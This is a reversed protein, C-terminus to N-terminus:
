KSNIKVALIKELNESPYPCSGIVIKGDPGVLTFAPYMKVNYLYEVMDASSGDLMIWGFGANKMRVSASSFNKDTLITVVQLNSAYKRYWSNLIGYEAIAAANDSRAFGLLVYKGAFGAMTKKNGGQDTLSFEPAKSGQYMVTMRELIIGALEKIYATSGDSKVSTVLSIINGAPISGDFMAPYLNLLLIYEVLQENSVKGDLLIAKKLDTLSSGAVARIFDNKYPGNLVSAFYGSFRQEILDPYAPNEPVFKRNIMVSDEVRGSYEGSGVMNIMIMRFKVFETFFPPMGPTSLSNLKEIISPIDSRKVNYVVRDAIRNFAQDYEADFKRILNNIDATDNLVEPIMRVEEFFPNQDEGPPKPIFDAMRIQYEKGEEAYLYWTYVGARIFITGTGKVPVSLSFSDKEDCVIRTYPKHSKTVPDTLTFIRLEAGAYGKGSGSIRVYQASLVHTVLILALLYRFKLNNMGRTTKLNSQKPFLDPLM